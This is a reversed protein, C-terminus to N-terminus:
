SSVEECLPRSLEFLTEIKYSSKFANSDVIFIPSLDFPHSALFARLRLEEEYPPPSFILEKVDKYDANLFKNLLELSVARAGEKDLYQVGDELYLEKVSFSTQSPCSYLLPYSPIVAKDSFVCFRLVRYDLLRFRFPEGNNSAYFSARYEASAPLARAGGIESISEFLSEEKKARQNILGWSCGCYNQRYLGASKAAKNQAEMGGKTLYDVFVFEVGHKQSIKSLSSKLQEKDKLPSQLLTSTFSKEGIRAAEKASAEFRMDFCIECRAGKEPAEEFGKVSCFWDEDDYVGEILEVGLAKCSKQADQLRLDYEAKPHINPNYFFGVLKENKYDAKLKTLFYHSDVSCCIHVLM